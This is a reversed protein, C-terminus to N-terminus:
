GPCRWCSLLQYPSYFVSPYRRVGGHTRLPLGNEWSRYPASAPDTLIGASAAAVVLAINSRYQGYGESASAAVPVTLAGKSPRQVIRLMPVLAHQRHLERLQAPLIGVGRAAAREIFEDPSLLANQTFALPLQLLDLSGVAHDLPRGWPMAPRM